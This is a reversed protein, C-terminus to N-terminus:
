RTVESMLKESERLKERLEKVEAVSSAPDLREGLISKLYGIEQRLDTHTHTCTHTHIHAHTLTHMHSHTLTHM